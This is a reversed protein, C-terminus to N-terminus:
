KQRVLKLFIMPFSFTSDLWALFLWRQEWVHEEEVKTRRHLQGLIWFNSLVNQGDWLFFLCSEQISGTFISKQKYEYPNM